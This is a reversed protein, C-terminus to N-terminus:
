GRGKDEGSRKWLPEKVKWKWRLYRYQLPDITVKRYIGSAAARSHAKVVTSEGDRVLSYETEGRFSKREWGALGDSEFRSVAITDAHVIATLSLFAIVSFVAPKM